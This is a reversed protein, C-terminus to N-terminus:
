SCGRVRKMEALSKCMGEAPTGAKENVFPAALLAQVDLTQPRCLAYAIAFQDDIENFTDSDIVVPIPM